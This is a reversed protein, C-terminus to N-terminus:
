KVLVKTATSGRRMIYVHGAQPAAVRVGQLNFYEAETDEGNIEVNEVGTVTPNDITGNDSAETVLYSPAMQAATFGSPLVPVYARTTVDYNISGANANDSAHSAYLTASHASKDSSTYEMEPSQRDYENFATHQSQEGDGATASPALARARSSAASSVKAWQSYLIDGANAHGAAADGLNTQVTTTLMNEVNDSSWSLVEASTSRHELQPVAHEGAKSPVWGYEADVPFDSRTPFANDLEKAYADSLKVSVVATYYNEDDTKSIPEVGFVLKCAGGAHIYRFGTNGGNATWEYKGTLESEEYKEENEHSYYLGHRYVTVKDIVTKYDVLDPVVVEIYNQYENVKVASHPTDNIDLNKLQDKSHVGAIEYSTVIQPVVVESYDLEYGEDMNKYGTGAIDSEHVYLWYNFGVIDDASQGNMDYWDNVKALELEMAGFDIVGNEDPGPIEVRNNYAALYGQGDLQFAYYWKGDETWISIAGVYQPTDDKGNDRVDSRFLSMMAYDHSRSPGADGGKRYANPMLDQTLLPKATSNRLLLKNQYTEQAQYNVKDANYIGAREYSAGPLIYMSALYPVKDEPYKPLKVYAYHVVTAGLDLNIGSIRELRLGYFEKYENGEDDVLVGPIMASVDTAGGGALQLGVVDFGTTLNINKYNGSADKVIAQMRVAKGLDLNLATGSTITFGAEIGTPIPEGAYVDYYAGGINLVATTAGDNLNNNVLNKAGTVMGQTAASSDHFYRKIIPVEVLNDVFAYHIRVQEIANVDVGATGIGVGDFELTNGDKDLEPATLKITQMGAGFSVLSLGLIKLDTGQANITAVLDKGNYLYIVFMKILDLNLVSGSNSGDSLVFGVVDGGHFKPTTIGSETDPSVVCLHDLAVTAGVGAATAYNYPDNDTLNDPNTIGQGIEIRFEGAYAKYGYKQLMPWGVFGPDPVDDVKLTNAKVPTSDTNI